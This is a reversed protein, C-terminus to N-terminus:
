HMVFSRVDLDNVQRDGKAKRRHKSGGSSRPREEEDELMIDFLAFLEDFKSRMEVTKPNKKVGAIMDLVLANNFLQEVRRSEKEM